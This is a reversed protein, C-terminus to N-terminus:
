LSASIAATLARIRAAVWPSAARSSNLLQAKWQRGLELLEPRREGTLLRELASVSYSHICSIVTFIFLLETRETNGRLNECAHAYLHPLSAVWKEGGRHLSLSFSVFLTELAIPTLKQFTETRWKPDTLKEWIQDLPLAERLSLLKASNAIILQDAENADGIDKFKELFSEPNVLNQYLLAIEVLFGTREPSSFITIWTDISNQLEVEFLYIPNSDILDTTPCWFLLHNTIDKELQERQSETLLGRLADVSSQQIAGLAAIKWPSSTWHTAISAPSTTIKANAFRWALESNRAEPLLAVDMLHSAAVLNDCLVESLQEALWWSWIALPEGLASPARTEFYRLYHQALKQSVIWFWQNKSLEKNKNEAALLECLFNAPTSRSKEPVHQPETLFYICAHFQAVPSTTSAWQWLEDWLGSSVGHHHVWARVMETFSMSGALPLAGFTALYKECAARLSPAHEVLVNIETNIKDRQESPRMFPLESTELTNLTPRLLKPIYHRLGDEYQEKISQRAGSIQCLVDEEISDHLILAVPQWKSADAVLLAERNEELTRRTRASLCSPREDSLAAFHNWAAERLHVDTNLIITRMDVAFQQKENKSDKYFLTPGAATRVRRPNSKDLVIEMLEADGNGEGTRRFLGAVELLTGTRVDVKDVHLLASKAIRAKLVRTVQVLSPEESTTQPM